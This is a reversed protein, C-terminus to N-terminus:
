ESDRATNHVNEIPQLGKVRFRSGLVKSGQVRFGSGMELLFSAAM